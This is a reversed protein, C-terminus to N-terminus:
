LVGKVYVTIDAVNDINQAEITITDSDESVKIIEMDAFLQYDEPFLYVIDFDGGDAKKPKTIVYRNDGDWDTELITIETKEKFPSIWDADERVYMEGDIPAENLKKDDLEDIADQVNESDLDSQEKKYKVSSAVLKVETTGLLEWENKIYIYEAFAQDEGEKELPVLYIVGGEGEAPLEEVKEITIGLVGQLIISRLDSIKAQKREGNEYVYVQSENGLGAKPYPLNAAVLTKINTLNYTIESEDKKIFKIIGTENDLEVSKITNDLKTFIDIIDAKNSSLQELIQDTITADVLEQTNDTYRDIPIDINTSAQTITKEKLGTEVWENDKYQWIIGDVVAYDENNTLGTEPLESENTYVGVRNTFGENENILNNIVEVQQIYAHLTSATNKKSVAHIVKNPILYTWTKDGRFEMSRKYEVSKPLQFDVKLVEGALVDAKIEIVASDGLSIKPIDKKIVNLNGDAKINIKKM